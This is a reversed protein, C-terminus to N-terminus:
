ALLKVVRPVIRLCQPKLPFGEKFVDFYMNIFLFLNVVLFIPFIYEVGCFLFYYYFFFTECYGVLITSHSTLWGWPLNVVFFLPDLDFM